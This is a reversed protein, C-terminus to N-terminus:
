ENYVAKWNSLSVKSNRWYRSPFDPHQCKGAQDWVGTVVSVTHPGYAASHLVLCAVTWLCSLRESCHWCGGPLAMWCPAHLLTVDTHKLCFSFVFGNVPCMSMERIFYLNSLRVGCANKGYWIQESSKVTVSKMCLRSMDGDVSIFYVCELLGLSFCQGAPM